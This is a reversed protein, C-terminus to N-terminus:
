RRQGDASAADTLREGAASLRRPRDPRENGRAAGTEQAARDDV